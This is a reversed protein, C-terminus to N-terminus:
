VRMPMIVRTMTDDNDHIMHPAGSDSGDIVIDGHCHSIIDLMYRSNFGFPQADEPWEASTKVTATGIDFNKREINMRGDIGLFRIAPGNGRMGGIATAQRIAQAIDQRDIEIHYNITDRRPIVRDFDPYTGDILKAMLTGAEAVIEIVTASDTAYLEVDMGEFHQMIFGVVKRPIIRTEDSNTEGGYRCVALRHGDTAAMRRAGGKFQLAVGNLYYRTEETSIAWSVKGLTAALMGNTFRDILDGRKKDLELWDSVPILNNIEYRADGATIIAREMKNSPLTIAEYVIRLPAVGAARAIASLEIAPICASFEGDGDIEDVKMKIQMDLDTGEVTLGSKGYTLRVCSLVPITNRREIVSSAIKMARSLARAEVTVHSM